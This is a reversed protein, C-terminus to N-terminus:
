YVGVSALVGILECLAYSLKDRRSELGSFFVCSFFLPSEKPRDVRYSGQGSLRRAASENLRLLRWYSSLM